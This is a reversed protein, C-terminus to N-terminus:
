LFESPTMGCGKRILTLGDRIPLIVVELQPHEKVLLNFKQLTQTQEDSRAAEELVKGNWLTNDAFIFGGVKLRPLVLRLNHDYEAKNGDLFILDFEGELGSLVDKCDGIHLHIKSALPSQALYSKIFAEMEDNIEITHLEGGDRLGEALCLASYGTFTGIELIRQPRIMLSLMRLIKGQLHGSLMRPRLFQVHTMRNLDALLAGEEDIHRLIYEEIADDTYM